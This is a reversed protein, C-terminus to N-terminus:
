PPLFLLSTSTIKYFAFRVVEGFQMCNEKVLSCVIRHRRVPKVIFESQPAAHCSQKTGSELIGAKSWGM